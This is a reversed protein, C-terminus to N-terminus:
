SEDGDDWDFDLEDQLDALTADLNGGAARKLKVLWRKRAADRAAFRETIGEQEIAHDELERITSQPGFKAPDWLEPLTYGKPGPDEPLLSRTPKKPHATEWPNFDPESHDASQKPFRQECLATWSHQSDAARVVMSEKPYANACSIRNKIETESLALGAAEAQARLRAAVGDRLRRQGTKTWKEDDCVIRRGWRWREMIGSRDALGIVREDRTYAALKMTEEWM